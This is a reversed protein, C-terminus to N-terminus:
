KNSFYNKFTFFLGANPWPELEAFIYTWEYYACMQLSHHRRTYLLNRSYWTDFKPHCSVHNTWPTAVAEAVGPFMSSTCRVTKNMCNCHSPTQPQPQYQKWSCAGLVGQCEEGLLVMSCIGLTCCWTCVHHRLPSPSEPTLTPTGWCPRAFVASTGTWSRISLIPLLFLM